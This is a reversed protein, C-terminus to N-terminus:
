PQLRRREWGGPTHIFVLRDHLRDQRERWFEIRRPQLDFGGWHPPRTVERGRFREEQEARSRELVARDAIERSQHSAWASIRSGRARSLFYADSAADDLPAVTGEVRIQRGLTHWYFVLAAEPNARLEEAKRSRLDTFFRFRGNEIGKFLVMRASPAGVPSVTALCVRDPLPVAAEVAERFWSQFSEIPDDTSLERELEPTM